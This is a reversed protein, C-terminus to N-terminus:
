GGDTREGPNDGRDDGVRDVTWWETGCACRHVKSRHDSERACEHLHTGLYTSTMEPSANVQCTREVVASQVGTVLTFVTDPFRKKMVRQAQEVSAETWSHHDDLLLLVRDGPKVILADAVEIKIDAMPASRKEAARAWAQEAQRLARRTRIANRIALMVLRDTTM